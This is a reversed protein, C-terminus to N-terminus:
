KQGPQRRLIEERRNKIQQVITKNDVGRLRAVRQRLINAMVYNRVVVTREPNIHQAFQMQVPQAPAVDDEEPVPSSGDDYDRRTRYQVPKEPKPEGYIAIVENPKVSPPNAPTEEEAAEVEPAPNVPAREYRITKQPQSAPRPPTHEALMPQFTVDHKENIKDMAVLVNKQIDLLKKTAIYSDQIRGGSRILMDRSDITLLHTAGSFQGAQLSTATTGNMSLKIEKISDDMKSRDVLSFNPYAEFAELLMYKEVDAATEKDATCGYEEPLQGQPVGACIANCDIMVSVSAGSELMKRITAMVKSEAPQGTVTSRQNNNAKEVPATACGAFIFVAALFLFRM